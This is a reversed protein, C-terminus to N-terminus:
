RLIVCAYTVFSQSLSLVLPVKQITHGYCATHATGCPYATCDLMSDLVQLMMMFGQALGYVSFM